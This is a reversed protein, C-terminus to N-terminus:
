LQELIKAASSAVAQGPSDEINLASVKGDDVIM